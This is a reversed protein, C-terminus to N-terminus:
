TETKTWLLASHLNLSRLLKPSWLTRSQAHTHFWLDAYVLSYSMVKLQSIEQQPDRLRQAVTSIHCGDGKFVAVNNWTVSLVPKVRMFLAHLLIANYTFTYIDVIKHHYPKSWFPLQHQQKKLCCLGFPPSLSDGLKKCGVIENQCHLSREDSMSLKSSRLCLAVTEKSRSALEPSGNFM